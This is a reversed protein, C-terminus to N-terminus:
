DQEYNNYKRVNLSAELLQLNDFCHLGCVTKSQLPIIHDVHLTVGLIKSWEKAKTYLLSIKKKESDFWIPTANLKVARRKAERARLNGVCWSNVAVRNDKKWAISEADGCDKCRRSNKYFDDKPLIGICMSCRKMDIKDLIYTHLHVRNPKSPFVTKAATTWSAPTYGFYKYSCEGSVIADMIQIKSKIKAKPSKQFVLDGDAQMKDLAYEIARQIYM